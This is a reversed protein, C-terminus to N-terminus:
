GLAGLVSRIAASLRDAEFRPPEELCLRGFHELIALVAHSLVETDLEPGHRTFSWLGVLHAIQGRIRERDAEIRERVEAPAARDAFLIPQWTDRDARIREVMAEAVAVVFGDPDSLDPEEPLLHELQALARAQQRDLLGFLLRGLSEFAGYVVPRTVGAERAVADISVADYGDRVIVRLAADYLQERREELPLRAAYPRRSSVKVFKSCRHLM